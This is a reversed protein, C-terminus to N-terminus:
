ETAWIANQAELVAVRDNQTTHVYGETTTTTTHGLLRQATDLGARQAVLTAATHRLSHYTREADPNSPQRKPIGSDRMALELGRQLLRKNVPTDPKDGFFVFPTEWPTIEKVSNFSDSVKAPFPVGRRVDGWKPPKLGQGDQWNTVVDLYGADLHVNEWVLGRIEGLRLGTTVSVMAAAFARFDNWPSSFLRRVEDPEFYGVKRPKEHVRRISKMLNVSVLDMAEAHELAVHVAQRVKNMTVASIRAPEIPKGKDDIELVEGPLKIRGNEFLHNRWELLVTKSLDALTEINRHEMYPLFYTQMLRRNSRCYDPSINRGEARKSRVYESTEYDWFNLLYAALKSSDGIKGQEILRLIEAHADRNRREVDRKKKLDAPDTELPVMQSYKRTGPVPFGAYLVTGRKRKRQILHYEPIAVGKM